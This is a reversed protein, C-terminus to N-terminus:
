RISYRCGPDLHATVYPLLDPSYNAPRPLQLKAAISIEGGGSDSVCVCM